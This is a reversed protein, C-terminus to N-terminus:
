IEALNGDTRIINNNYDKLTLVTYRTIVTKKWIRVKQDREVTYVTSGGNIILNEWMQHEIEIM